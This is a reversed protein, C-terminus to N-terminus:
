KYKAYIHEMKIKAYLVYISDKQKKEMKQFKKVLKLFAEM